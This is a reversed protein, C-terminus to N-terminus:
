PVGFPSEIDFAIDGNESRPAMIGASRLSRPAPPVVPAEAGDVPRLSKPASFSPAAAGNVPAEASVMDGLDCKEGRPQPGDYAGASRPAQTRAFREM